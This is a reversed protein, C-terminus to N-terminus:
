IRKPKHLATTLLPPIGTHSCNKYVIRGTKSRNPKMMWATRTRIMPLFFDRNVESVREFLEALQESSLKGFSDHIEKVFIALLEVFDKVAQSAAFQAALQQATPIQRIKLQQITFTRGAVTATVPEALLVALDDM